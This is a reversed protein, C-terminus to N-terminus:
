FELTMGDWAPEVGKPLTRRLTEFDMENGMHTLITRRPKLRSVWELARETWAHTRHEHPQFCGLVWTDIGELAAFEADGMTVVDTTFGFDGIRLGLSRSYGHDQDFTRVELGALRLTAGAAFEVPLLAPRFFQPPNSPRFCYAFRERLEDLVAKTGYAPIPLGVIRNLQRVDDIGLIHDAHAHTYLIEDVQRVRNALLQARMDPSTDVLVYQNLKINEIYASSRTRINRADSPDCLGWDGSGDDGGIHPVGTSGGTGLLIVRFQM